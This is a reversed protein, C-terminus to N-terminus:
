GATFAPDCSAPCVIVSVAFPTNDSVKGCLTLIHLCCLLFASCPRTQRKNRDRSPRPAEFAPSLQIALASPRSIRRQWITPDARGSTQFPM